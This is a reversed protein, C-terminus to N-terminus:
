IVVLEANLAGAESLAQLISMLDTPTAGLSNVANVITNLETGPPWIVMQALEEDVNIQTQDIVKTDGGAFANPQSVQQSESIRVTLNGHSVAAEGVKVNKGIVVTGTRSNFVIRAPKRGEEVSMEELMSMMTVRQQTDMPARMEVRAKNIAKAVNPGFTNNIERAINKATTFSPKRLNLTIEGRQNFDTEIERELTAGNPVRGATPTNVEVKSGSKGEASLGGVVVSGQAIAYVEGDIGRLPTLLLTGGRLSKADGISSVVVDLTQGPGAMPDVSATVSVSAVNRLKPNMSDDIQVGFQRLMNTISQATFKVQNRDGQGALGVVLGYGVLQNERIGQVDVLDMIPIEVEAQSTAPLGLTLALLFSSFFANIPKMLITGM